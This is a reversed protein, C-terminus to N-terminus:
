PATSWFLAALDLPLGSVAEGSVVGLWRSEGWDKRSWALSQQRVRM